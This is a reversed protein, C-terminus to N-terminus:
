EPGFVDGRRCFCFINTLVLNLFKDLFENLQETYLYIKRYLLVEFFDRLSFLDFNHKFLFTPSLCRM